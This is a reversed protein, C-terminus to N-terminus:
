PCNATAATPLELISTLVNIAIAASGFRLSGTRSVITFHVCGALRSSSPPDMKRRGSALWSADIALACFRFGDQVSELEAM